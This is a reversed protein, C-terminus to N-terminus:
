VVRHSTVEDRLGISARINGEEDMLSVRPLSEEGLRLLSRIDADQDVMDVGTWNSKFLGVSIRPRGQPDLFRLSPSGEGTFGLVARVEGAEDVLEFWEARFVKGAENDETM